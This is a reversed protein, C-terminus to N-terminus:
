YYIFIGINRTIPSHLNSVTAIQMDLDSNEKKIPKPTLSNEENQPSKAPQGDADTADTTQETSVVADKILTLWGLSGLSSNLAEMDINSRSTTTMNKPFLNRSSINNVPFVVFIFHIM